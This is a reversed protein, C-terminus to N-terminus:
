VGAGEPTCMSIAAPEVDIALKRVPSRDGGDLQYTVKRDLKIRIRRGATTEVFPSRAATGVAVRGLTRAWEILGDATVAGIELMGDDPRARDFAEIGGMLTGVNGVLISSVEGQFWTTRDVKIRAGFQDARLNKAGTVIYALKGIRDKLGSDADRIMLADFGAGAMVAFREGNVIGVDLRRRGGAIAVRVAGAIDDPIELNTALLNATGAPVIALDTASGALVDVCRRVLGDGGWALVLEVGDDLARRAYKPAQKSKSVEYWAPDPVGEAALRQRLEVLGGGMTKGTHAIVAVAKM